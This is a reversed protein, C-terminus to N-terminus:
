EMSEWGWIQCISERPHHHLPCRLQPAQPGQLAQPGRFALSAKLVWPVPSEQPAM